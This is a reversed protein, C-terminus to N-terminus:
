IGQINKYIFFYPNDSNLADPTDITEREPKAQNEKPLASLPIPPVVQGASHHTLQDCLGAQLTKRRVM